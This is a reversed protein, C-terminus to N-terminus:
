TFKALARHCCSSSLFATRSPMLHTRDSVLRSFFTGQCRESPSWALSSLMDPFAQSPCVHEKSSPSLYSEGAEKEREMNTYLWVLLWYCNGAEKSIHEHFIIWRNEEKVAIFQGLIHNQLRPNNNKQKVIFLCQKGILNTSHFKLLINHFHVHWKRRGTSDSLTQQQFKGQKYQINDAPWTLLPQHQFCPPLPLWPSDITRKLMVTWVPLIRFLAERRDTAKFDGWELTCLAPSGIWGYGM